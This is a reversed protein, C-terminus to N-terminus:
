ARTLAKWSASSPEAIGFTAALVVKGAAGEAIIGTEDDAPAVPEGGTAGGAGDADDDTLVHRM